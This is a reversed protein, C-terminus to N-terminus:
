PACNQQLSQMIKKIQSSSLASLCLSPYKAVGFDTKQLLTLEQKLGFAKKKIAYGSLAEKAIEISKFQSHFPHLAYYRLIIKQENEKYTIFNFDLYLIFGITFSVIATIIGVSLRLNEIRSYLCLVVSLLYLFVILYYLFKIWTAREQNSIFVLNKM